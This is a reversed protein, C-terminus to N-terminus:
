EPPKEFCIKLQTGTCLFLRCKKDFPNGSFFAEPPMVILIIVGKAVVAFFKKASIQM